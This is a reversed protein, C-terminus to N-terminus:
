IIKKYFCIGRPKLRWFFYKSINLKKWKYTQKLYLVFQLLSHCMFILHPLLKYHLSQPWVSYLLETFYIICNWMRFASYVSTSKLPFCSYWVVVCLCIHLQNWWNICFTDSVVIWHSVLVGCKRCWEKFFESTPQFPFCVTKYEDTCFFM